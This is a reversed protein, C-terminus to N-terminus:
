IVGLFLAAITCYCVARRVSPREIWVYAQIVICILWGM